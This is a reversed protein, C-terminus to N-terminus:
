SLIIRIRDFSPLFQRRPHSLALNQFRLSHCTVPLRLRLTLGCDARRSHVKGTSNLGLPRQLVRLPTM